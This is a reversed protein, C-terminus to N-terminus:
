PSDQGSVFILAFKGGGWCIALGEITIGCSRIGSTSLQQFRYAPIERPTVSSSIARPQGLEGAANNGWCYVAGGTVMGCGYSDGVQLSVWSLGDNFVVPTLAVDQIAGGLAEGVNSGWCARQRTSLIGCTFEAGVAIAIFQHGGAVRAPTGHGWPADRADGLIARTSDGLQGFFNRGWCWAEGAQDLGCSHWQDYRIKRQTTTLAQFQVGGQVPAPVLNSSANTGNQGALNHGWCLTEGNTAIGCTSIEGLTLTDFSFGGAVLVPTAHGRTTGDGLQGEANRGWCWATNDLAIGCGHEAGAFVQRFRLGGEVIAPVLDTASLTQPFTSGRGLQGANNSGWCYTDGTTAVGCAFSVGAAVQRFRLSVVDFITSDAFGERSVRVVFRGVRTATVHGTASVVGISPDSSSWVLPRPGLLHGNATRLVVSLQTAGTVVLQQSDESLEITATPEEVRLAGLRAINGFSATILAAGPRLLTLEGSSSVSVVTSDSSTWTVPIGPVPRGASDYATAVLQYTDGPLFLPTDPPDTFSIQLSRVQLEPDPAVADEACAALVVALALASRISLSRRPRDRMWTFGVRCTRCTPRPRGVLVLGLDCTPPNKAVVEGRGREM